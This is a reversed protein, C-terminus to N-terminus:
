LKNDGITHKEISPIIRGLNVPDAVQSFFIVGQDHNVIGCAVPKTPLVPRPVM